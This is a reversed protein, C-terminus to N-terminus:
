SLNPTTNWASLDRGILTGLRQNEAHYYTQLEDVIRPPIDAPAPKLVCNRLARAGYEYFRHTRGMVPKLALGIRNIGRVAASALGGTKLSAHIMEAVCAPTVGADVGLFAYIRHIFAAPEPQIDDFLQILFQDRDFLSFYRELHRAYCAHQLLSSQNDFTLAADAEAVTMDETIRGALVHGRFASYTREIPNRLTVVLRIDPYHKQIRQASDHHCLYTPTVEGVARETDAHQWFSRYWDLGQGFNADRNFFNLEKPRRPVCIDPHAKLCEHVWTSACRAAGIFLFNPDRSM